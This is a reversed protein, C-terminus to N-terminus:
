IFCIRKTKLPNFLWITGYLLSMGDPNYKTYYVSTIMTRPDLCSASARQTPLVYNEHSVQHYGANFVYWRQWVFWDTLATYPFLSWKKNQPGYFGCICETPLIFFKKVNVHHYTFNGRPKLPNNESYIDCYTGDYITKNYKTLYAEDTHLANLRIVQHHGSNNRCHLFRFDTWDTLSQQWTTCPDTPKRSNVYSTSCHSKQKTSSPLKFRENYTV